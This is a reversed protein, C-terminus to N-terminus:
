SSKNENTIKKKGRRGYIKASFVTILSLMDEVLENEFSKPLTEETCIVEVGLANFFMVFMKFNFRTLRDKHEIVLKKFKGKQALNIIHKLKPRNDNMGSSCEEVSELVAYGKSLCFELNRLKQRDLDGHNKQDQSSVRSYCIVVNSNDVDEIGLLVDVDVKKYRRHGGITRYAKLYSEPLSRLYNETVGLLNATEKLAIFQRDSM